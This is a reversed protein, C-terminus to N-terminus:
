LFEELDPTLPSEDPLIWAGPQFVADDGSDPWPALTPDAALWPQDGFVYSRVDSVPALGIAARHANLAPGFLDTFREADRAWLERNDATAPASQGPIPPLPPPAHHKSPLV